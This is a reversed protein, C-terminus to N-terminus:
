CCQNTRPVRKWTFLVNVGDDM